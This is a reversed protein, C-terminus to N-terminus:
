RENRTGNKGGNHKNSKSQSKELKKRQYYARDYEAKMAKVEPIDRIAKRRAKVEPRRLYERKIAKAEPSKYYFKYRMKNNKYWQRGYARRQERTREYFKRRKAREEALKEDEHFKDYVKKFECSLNLTALPQTLPLGLEVNMINRKIESECLENKAM